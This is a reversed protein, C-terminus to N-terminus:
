LGKTSQYGFTQKTINTLKSRKQICDNANYKLNLMCTIDYLMKYKLDMWTAAFPLIENKKIAYFCVM